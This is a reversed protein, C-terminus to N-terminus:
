AMEPIVGLQRMMSIEDDTGWHEAVKGDQVRMVHVGKVEIDRGTPPIGFFEGEHRGRMILRVAVRDGEAIMDLITWTVNPFSRRFLAVIQKHGEIGERMGPPNTHDYFTPHIIEDAIDRNDTNLDEDFLRRIVAKVAENSM